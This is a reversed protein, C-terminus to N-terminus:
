RAPIRAVYSVACDMTGTINVNDKLMGQQRMLLELASQKAFRVKTKIRVPEGDASSEEVEVGALGRRTDEDLETIPKISGDPRCLKAPDLLAMRAVEMILREATVDALDMARDRLENIRAKVDPRKALGSANVYRANRTKGRGPFTQMFADVLTIGGGAVLQAFREEEVTLGTRQHERVSARTGVMKRM